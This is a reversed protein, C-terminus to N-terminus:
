HWLEAVLPNDILLGEFIRFLEDPLADISDRYKALLSQVEAHSMLAKYYANM